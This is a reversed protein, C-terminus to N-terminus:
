LLTQDVPVAEFPLHLYLEPVGCQFQVESHGTCMLIKLLSAISVQNSLFNTFLKVDLGYKETKASSHASILLVSCSEIHQRHITFPFGSPLVEKCNKM